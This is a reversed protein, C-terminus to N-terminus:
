LYVVQNPPTQLKKVISYICYGFAIAGVILTGTTGLIEAIKAFLFKMGARRGSTEVQGGGELIEADMYIVWTFLATFFLGLLPSSITKLTSQREISPTLNQRSNIYAVVDALEQTTTFQLPIKKNDAKVELKTANNELHTLEHIASIEITKKEKFLGKKNFSELFDEGSKFSKNMMLLQNDHVLMSKWSKENTLTYLNQSM